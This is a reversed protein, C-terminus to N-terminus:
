PSTLTGSARQLNYAIEPPRNERPRHTPHRSTFRRYIRRCYIFCRYIRRCYIFCRYILRRFTIVGGYM